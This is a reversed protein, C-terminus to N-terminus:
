LFDLKSLLPCVGNVMVPTGPMLLVPVFSL